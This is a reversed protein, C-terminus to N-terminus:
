GLGEPLDSPESLGGKYKVQLKRESLYSMIIRLIWMPVGMRYLEEVLAGHHIRNFGKSFDIMTLMTACSTSLDLNYLIFNTVEILYHSVSNKAIGGFQDRDMHERVYPWMWRLVFKETM